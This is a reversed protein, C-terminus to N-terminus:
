VCSVRGLASKLLINCHFHVSKKIQHKFHADVDKLVTASLQNHLLCCGTYKCKNIFSIM